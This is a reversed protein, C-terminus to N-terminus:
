GIPKDGRIAQDPLIPGMVESGMEIVKGGFLQASQRRPQYLTDLCEVLL